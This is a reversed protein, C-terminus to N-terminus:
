LQAARPGGRTAARPRVGGNAGGAVQARAARKQARRRRVHLRHLRGQEVVGGVEGVPLLRGLCPGRARLRRRVGGRVRM